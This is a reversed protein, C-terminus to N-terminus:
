DERRCAARGTKDLVHVLLAERNKDGAQAAGSLGLLLAPTSPGAQKINMGRENNLAKVRGSYCGALVIDGVKLTGKQVLM